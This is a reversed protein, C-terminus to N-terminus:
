ILLKIGIAALLVAFLLSLTRGAIRQQLATGIVAGAAAPLGVLM